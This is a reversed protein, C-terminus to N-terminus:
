AEVPTATGIKLQTSTRKVVTGRYWYGRSESRVMPLHTHNDRRRKRNATSGAGTSSKGERALAKTSDSEGGQGCNGWGAYTMERTEPVWGSALLGADTMKGVRCRASETGRSDLWKSAARRRDNGGGQM